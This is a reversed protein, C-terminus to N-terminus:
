GGFRWPDSSLIAEALGWCTMALATLFIVGPPIPGGPARWTLPEGHAAKKAGVPCRLDAYFLWVSFTFLGLLGRFDTLWVYLLAMGWLGVLALAPTQFRQHVQAFVAPLLGDHAMAYGLRSSALVTGHIAGFTSLAVIASVM